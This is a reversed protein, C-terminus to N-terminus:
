IPKRRPLHLDKLKSGFMAGIVYFVKDEETQPVAGVGTAKGKPRCGILILVFISFVVLTLKM